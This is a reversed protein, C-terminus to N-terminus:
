TIAGSGIRCNMAATNGLRVRSRIMALRRPSVGCPHAHRFGAGFFEFAEAVLSSPFSRLQRLDGVVRKAALRSAFRRGHGRHAPEWVDALAPVPFDGIDNEAVAQDAVDVPGDNRHVAPEASFVM